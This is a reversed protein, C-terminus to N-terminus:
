GIAPSYFKHKLCDNITQLVFNLMFLEKAASFIPNNENEFCNLNLNFATLGQIM